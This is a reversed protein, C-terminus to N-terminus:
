VVCIVYADIENVAEEETLLDVFDNVGLNATAINTLRNAFAIHGLHARAFDVAFSPHDECLELFLWLRIFHAPLHYNLHSTVTNTSSTQLSTDRLYLLYEHESAAHSNVPRFRLSARRM